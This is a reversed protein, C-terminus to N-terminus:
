FVRSKGPNTKRVLDKIKKILYNAKKTLLIEWSLTPSPDPPPPNLFDSPPWSCLHLLIQVNKGIYCLFNLPGEMFSAPNNSTKDKLNYCQM